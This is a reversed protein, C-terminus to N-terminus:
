RLFGRALEYVGEAAAVAAEAAERSPEFEFDYRLEVAFPTLMVVEQLMGLANDRPTAM